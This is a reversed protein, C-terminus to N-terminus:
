GHRGGTSEEPATELTITPGWPSGAAVRHTVTALEIPGTPDAAFLQVLVTRNKSWLPRWYVVPLVPAADAHLCTM